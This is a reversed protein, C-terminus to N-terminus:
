APVLPASRDGGADVGTAATAEADGAGATATDDHERERLEEAIILDIAGHLRRAFRRAIGATLDPVIATGEPLLSTAPVGLSRAIEYLTTIPLNQKGGEINAISTRTYGMPLAIDLQTMHLARRADRIRGGISRLIEADTM